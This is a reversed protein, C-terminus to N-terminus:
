IARDRDTRGRKKIVRAPVGVAVSQEPIDKAVVSGAGVVCGTGIRVGDLVCVGGGLWVDDEITIGKGYVAAQSVMPGDNSSIDPNPDGIIYSYAAVMVNQGLQVKTHLAAIHSYASIRTDNGIEISGLRSRILTGRGVGVNDGIRIEGGPKAELLCNDGVLCNRGISIRDPNFIDVNKGFVVNRLKPRFLHAYLAKRLAIGLGGPISSTMTVIVEYKLLSTLSQDGVAIRQYKKLYSERDNFVRARTVMSELGQPTSDDM